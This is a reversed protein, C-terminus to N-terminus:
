KAGRRKEKKSEMHKPSSTDCPLWALVRLAFDIKGRQEKKAVREGKLNKGNESV